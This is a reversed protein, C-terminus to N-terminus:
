QNTVERYALVTCCVAALAEASKAILATKDSTVRDIFLGVMSHDGASQQAPTQGAELIAPTGMSGIVHWDVYAVILWTMLGAGILYYLLPNLRGTEHAWMLGVIMVSATLFMSPIPPFAGYALLHSTVGTVGRAFHILATVVM